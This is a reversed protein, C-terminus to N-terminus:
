KVSLVSFVSAYSYVGPVKICIIGRQIVHEFTSKHLHRLKSYKIFSSFHCSKVVCVTPMDAYNILVSAEKKKGWILRVDWGWGGCGIVHKNCCTLFWVLPLWPLLDHCACIESVKLFAALPLQSFSGSWTLLCQLPSNASCIPASRRGKHRDWGERSWVSESWPQFTPMRRVSGMWQSMRLREHTACQVRGHRM